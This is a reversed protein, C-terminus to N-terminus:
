VMLPRHTVDGLPRVEDCAFGLERDGHPTILQAADEFTKRLSEAGSNGIGMLSTISTTSSPAALPLIRSNGAIGMLPLSRHSRVPAWADLIPELAGPDGHPTISAPMSLRSSRRSHRHRNWPYRWSTTIGGVRRVKPDQVPLVAMSNGIGMLLYHAANPIGDILWWPSTRATGIGM